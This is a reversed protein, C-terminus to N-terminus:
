IIFLIVISPYGAKINLHLFILSIPRIFIKHCVLTEFEYLSGEYVDVPTAVFLPSPSSTWILVRKTDYPLDFSTNSM